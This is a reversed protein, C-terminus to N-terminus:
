RINRRSKKGIGGKKYKKRTQHGRVAAQIKTASCSSTKGLFDKYFDPRFYKFMNHDTFGSSWKTAKIIDAFNDTNIAEVICDGEKKSKIPIGFSYNSMGYEGKYDNYPYTYLGKVLIVKPIGFMQVMDKVPPTKTSSWYLIDGATITHSHRIPYKFTSTKTENMYPKRKDFQSSSYIVKNGNEETTLLKKINDLNYNPLFSWETLDITHQKNQEDIVITHTYRTNKQLIYYDIRTAAGGNFIQTTEESGFIKLFIANNHTFIDWMIKLNGKKDPARWKAPNIFSLFGNENLLEVSKIFFSPYLDHGGQATDGSTQNQFPPNGIIIDFKSVGGFETKELFDGKFINPTADPDIMKFVRRCVGVNVPNLENMYLMQEIIHKSRKKPNGIAGKLTVMLKYYVVIPFNGIGNAPDFWKLEKDTWVRSPLKSLMECVLELPTFVEGFLNKEEEKPTLHKRIIELVKENDIFNKPCFGSDTIRFKEKEEKLKGGLSNMVSKINSYINNISEQIDPSDLRYISRLLDLQEDVRSKIDEIETQALNTIDIGNTNLALYCHYIVHDEKCERIKSYDLAVDEILLEQITKAGETFWIFLTFSNEIMQYIARIKLELAVKEDIPPKVPGNDNTDVYEAMASQVYKSQKNQKGRKQKEGFMPSKLIIKKLENGIKKDSLLDKILSVFGKANISMYQENMLMDFKEASDVGFAEAISDYGSIKKTDDRYLIKEKIGNVDFLLLSNRVDERTPRDERLGESKSQITYNYVFQIARDVLMDVFYGCRKGHRETLVRFISQYIIDYSQLPDMHIAVDVCSLSIGLRLRKGTLIILSRNDAKAEIERVKICNKVSKATVCEFFIRPVGDSDKIPSVSKNEISHVICVNFKKYNKNSIICEALRRSVIEFTSDDKNNSPNNSNNKRLQTPLFWLQSHTTGTGNAVFNFQKHLLETYVNKYIYDLYDIMSSEYKLKDGNIEWLKKVNENNSLLIKGDGEGITTRPTDIIPILYKLEPYKDYEQSLSEDSKGSRNYIETINRLIMMKRVYDPDSINILKNDNSENDMTVMGKSFSKMKMIMDYSWTVLHASGSGLDKSYKIMPKAYTATVMIIIPEPFEPKYFYEITERQMSSEGGGQHVEDFFIIKNECKLFPDLSKIFESSKAVDGRLKEQSIVIVVPKDTYTIKRSSVQTDIVIYGKLDSYKNFLEDIFQEKTEGVAGLLLLVVRPQRKAVLGGIMFSKGSRAVAGWIIKGNTKGKLLDYTYDVVYQQHFRLIDAINPEIRLHLVEIWKKEDEFQKVSTFSSKLWQYLKKYYIMCLDDYGYVYKEDMVYKKVARDTNRRLSRIFEDKNNILTIIRFTDSKILSNAKHSPHYKEIAETIIKEYDYKGLGKEKKYYKSTFLYADGVMPTFKDECANTTNEKTTDEGKEVNFYLDCVGARNGENIKHKLYGFVDIDHSQEISVKFNRKFGPAIDDLNLLFIIKWLAEFIYAKTLLTNTREGSEPFKAFLSDCSSINSSFIRHLLDLLTKPQNRESWYVEHNCCEQIEKRKENLTRIKEDVIKIASCPNEYQHCKEDMLPSNNIIIEPSIPRSITVPTHSNNIKKTKVLRRTSKDKTIRISSTGLYKQNEPSIVTETTSNNQWIPISQKNKISLPDATKRLAEEIQGQEESSISM